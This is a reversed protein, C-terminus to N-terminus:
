ICHNGHVWCVTYIRLRTICSVPTRMGSGATSPMLDPLPSCPNKALFGLGFFSACDRMASSASLFRGLTLIISRLYVGMSLSFSTPLHFTMSSSNILCPKGTVPPWWCAQPRLLTYSRQGPSCFSLGIIIWISLPLHTSSMQDIPSVGAGLRLSSKRIYELDGDWTHLLIHTHLIYM